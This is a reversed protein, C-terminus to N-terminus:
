DGLQFRILLRKVKLLRVIRSRLATRWVQLHDDTKYFRYVSCPSGELQAFRADLSSEIFAALWPEHAAM